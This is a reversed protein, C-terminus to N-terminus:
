KNAATNVHCSAPRGAPVRATMRVVTQASASLKAAMVTTLQKYRKMMGITNAVSMVTHKVAAAHSEALGIRLEAPNHNRSLTSFRIM